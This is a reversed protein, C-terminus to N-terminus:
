APGAEPPAPRSSVGLSITVVGFPSDEHPIQLDLVAARLQEALANAGELDTSPLIVAFEEGGFRAVLDGARRLTRALCGAISRLCADGEQHGYRDNLKKFLDVDVLVLGVPRKSRRSRGWEDSLTMEMQRRNAIGTLPDRFSLSELTKNAARLESNRRELEGQAARLEATRQAVEDALARNRKELTANRIRVTALGGGLLLAAFLGYAWVTRHWPPLVRFSFTAPDSLNGLTDRTRVHLRYTGEWLNAYEHAAESTWDSWEDDPGELHYQYKAPSSFSLSAVEFRVRSRSALAPPLLSPGPLRLPADAGVVIKRVLPTPPRRSFDLRDTELRTLGKDGWIWLIGDPESLVGNSSTTSVGHITRGVWRSGEREFCIVGHGTSGIWLRGRSDPAISFFPAGELGAGITEDPVLREGGADPVLLGRDSAVLLKGALTTVKCEQAEHYARVEPAGGAGFRVRWAGDYPTGLWLSGDSTECISRVQTAVGPVIGESRPGSRDARLSALGTKLGAWVRGPARSSAALAYVIENSLADTKRGRARAGSGELRFLGETTGALLGDPTSLLAWVPEGFGDLRM